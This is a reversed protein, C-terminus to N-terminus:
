SCDYENVHQGTGEAGNGTLGLRNSIKWNERGIQMDYDAYDRKTMQVPTKGATSIGVSKLKERTGWHVPNGIEETSTAASAIYFANELGAKRVMDRM